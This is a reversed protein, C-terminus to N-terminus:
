RRGNFYKFITLGLVIQILESALLFVAKLSLTIM